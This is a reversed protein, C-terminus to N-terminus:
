PEILVNGGTHCGNCTAAPVGAMLVEGNANRMGVEATAWDITPNGAAAADIWFNGNTASYTTYLVAGGPAAALLGVQVNAAGVTGGAEYVTGGFIWQPAAGGGTHCNMCNNGDQHNGDAPNPLGAPDYAAAGDWFGAAGGGGQGTGGSGGGGTNSTTSSTTSSTTTTTTTSNTEESDSKCAGLAAAAVLAAGGIVLISRM